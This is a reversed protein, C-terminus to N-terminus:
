SSFTMGMSRVGLRAGSRGAVGENSGLEGTRGVRAVLELHLDRPTQAPPDERGDLSQLSHVPPEPLQVWVTLVDKVNNQYCVVVSLHTDTEDVADVVITLMLPKAM